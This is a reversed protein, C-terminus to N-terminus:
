TGAPAIVGWSGVRVQGPQREGTIWVRAGPRMEAPAGLISLTETGTDLRDGSLVVGVVPREGDIEVVEYSEVRITRRTEGAVVGRAVITAGALRRLEPELAGTIILSGSGDVNLTTMPVPGTGSAVVRGRVGDTRVAPPPPDVQRPPDGPRPPGAMATDAAHVPVITTDAHAATDQDAGAGADAADPAPPACAALAVAALAVATLPLSRIM